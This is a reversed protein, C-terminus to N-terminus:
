AEILARHAALMPALRTPDGRGLGCEAAIGTVPLHAQAQYLRALNGDADNLLVCGLHFETAAPLRLGALPAFFGADRRGQPVPLHIYDIRRQARELVRNAMAVLVGMDSPILCPADLPSGYCLHYGLEAQGPVAAALAALSAVIEDETNTSRPFYGEWWLVEQCVDWQVALREPPIAAAIRAIEDALHRTYVRIFDARDDPTIYMLAIAHPTAACVQYRLHRPLVGDEHLKKFVAFSGIADDAYGTDFTVGDRAIGDKFKLLPWEMVVQGDWQTFRFPPTRDDKEFAPHRGLHRRVFGIWDARRGTEGDPLRTLHPGLADALTRFVAEAGALPVSGVVHAIM